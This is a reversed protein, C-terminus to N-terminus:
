VEIEYLIQYCKEDDIYTETKEWVFSSLVQEVRGESEVDKQKTYLEVLIHDTKQYVIGDAIFNNSNAVLFCIFPLPPAENEPFSRYAVPLGTTKLLEKLEELTM